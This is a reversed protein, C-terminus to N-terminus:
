LDLHSHFELYIHIEYVGLIIVKRYMVLDNIFKMIHFSTRQNRNRLQFLFRESLFFLAIVHTGTFLDLITIIHWDLLINVDSSFYCYNNYLQLLM